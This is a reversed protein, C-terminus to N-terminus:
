VDGRPNVNSSTPIQPRGGDPRVMHGYLHKRVLLYLYESMSREQAAAVRNLDLLVQETVKLTVAEDRKTDDAM